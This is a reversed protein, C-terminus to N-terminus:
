EPTGLHTRITKEAEEAQPMSNFQFFTAKGGIKMALVPLKLHGSGCCTHASYGKEASRLDEMATYPVYSMGLLSPIFLAQAGLRYRDVKTSAALDADPDPITYAPDFPKLKM